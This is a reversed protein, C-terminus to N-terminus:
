ITQLPTVSGGGRNSAGGLGQGLKGGRKNKFDKNERKKKRM